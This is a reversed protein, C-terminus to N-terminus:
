KKSKHKKEKKKKKKEKKESKKSDKKKKEKKKKKKEKKGESVDTDVESEQAIKEEEKDEVDEDSDSDESSMDEVAEEFKIRKVPTAYGNNESTKGQPSELSRKKTASDAVAKAKKADLSMQKHKIMTAKDLKEVSKILEQWRAESLPSKYSAGNAGNGAQEPSKLGDKVQDPSAKKAQKEKKAKKSKKVKTDKHVKSSGMRQLIPLAWHEIVRFWEYLDVDSV